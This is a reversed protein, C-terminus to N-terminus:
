PLLVRDICARLGLLSHGLNIRDRHVILMTLILSLISERATIEIMSGIYRHKLIAEVSSIPSTPFETSAIQSPTFVYLPIDDATTLSVSPLINDTNIRRDFSDCIAEACSCVLDREGDPSDHLSDMLLHPAPMNLGIHELLYAVMAPVSPVNCVRRSKLQFFHALKALHICSSLIESLGQVVVPVTAPRGNETRIFSLPQEVNRTMRVFMQERLSCEYLLGVCAAVTKERWYGADCHLGAVSGLGVGSFDEEGYLLPFSEPPQM